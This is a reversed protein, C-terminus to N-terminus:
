LMVLDEGERVINVDVVLDDDRILCAAPLDGNVERDALPTQRICILM